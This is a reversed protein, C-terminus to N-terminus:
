CDKPEKMGKRAFIVREVLIGKEDGCKPCKKLIPNSLKKPSPLNQISNIGERIMNWKGFNKCKAWLSLPKGKKDSFFWAPNM